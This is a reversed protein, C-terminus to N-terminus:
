SCYVLNNKIVAHSPTGIQELECLIVADSNTRSCYMYWLRCNNWSLQASTCPKSIILKGDTSYLVPVAIYSPVCFANVMIGSFSKRHAILLLVAFYVFLQVAITSLSNCQMRVFSQNSVPFCNTVWRFHSIPWQHEATSKWFKIHKQQWTLFTNRYFSRLSITLSM